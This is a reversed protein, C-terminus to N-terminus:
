KRSEQYNTYNQQLPLALDHRGTIGGVGGGLQQQLYALTVTGFNSSTTHETIIGTLPGASIVQWGSCFDIRFILVHRAFSHHACPRIDVHANLTYKNHQKNGTSAAEAEASIAKILLSCVVFVSLNM